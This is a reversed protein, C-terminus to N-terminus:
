NLKNNTTTTLLHLLLVEQTSNKTSSRRVDLVKFIIFYNGVYNESYMFVFCSHDNKNFVDTFQGNFEEAQEIESASVLEEDEKLPHFVKITKKGVILTGISTELIQRLTVLWTILMCFTSSELMMRLKEEWLKLNQGSNRVARTKQKLMLKTEEAFRGEYKRPLGPFRLSRGVLKPHSTNIRRIKFLLLLWTLTRKYRTLIQIVTSISKRQLNLHMKGGYIWLWWESIFVGKESTEKHPSHCTEFNWCCYRLGQTKNPSHIDQLQGPLSSFLLELTNKERTPFHVLQELGHDNMIDILIQGEWQSM